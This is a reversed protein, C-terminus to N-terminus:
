RIIIIIIYNNDRTVPRRKRNRRKFWRHVGGRSGSTEGQLVKRTIHSIGLIATKQLSDVSHQGPISKLNKRLVKTVIGTAGTIVPIIKIENEM